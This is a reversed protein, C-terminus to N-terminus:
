PAAVVHVTFGTTVNRAAVTIEADGPSVGMIGDGTVAVIGPASSSIGFVLGSVVVEPEGRLAMLHLEVGEGAPLELASLSGDYYQAPLDTGPRLTVRIAGLPLPTSVVDIRQSKTIGDATATLTATGPGNAVLAVDAPSRVRQRAASVVDPASSRIEVDVSNPCPVPEVICNDRTRTDVHALMPLAVIM